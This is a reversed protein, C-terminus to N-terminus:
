KHILLGNGNFNIGTTNTENFFNLADDDIEQFLYTLVETKGNNTLSKIKKKYENLNSYQIINSLYILDFINKIELGFIDGVIFEINIKPIIERLKYYNDLKLYENQEM